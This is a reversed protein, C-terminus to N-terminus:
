PTVAQEPMLASLTRQYERLSRDQDTLEYVDNLARAFAREAMRVDLSTYYPERNRQDDELYGLEHAANILARITHRHRRAVEADTLGYIGGFYGM